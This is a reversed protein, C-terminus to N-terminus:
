RGLLSQYLEAHRAAASSPAHTKAAVERAATRMAELSGSTLLAYIGRALDHADAKAALYGTKFTEVLDPAGTGDFAAVPTGCLMAEPVMMPGADEISPCVFLDASQYALALTIEDNFHGTYKGAFPLQSMLWKSNLGAVLLFLDDSKIINESEVMEALRNLAEILQKMGKRRDELYTAGFFLIKKDFPLHLLDRAVRQNFPRFISTDIPYPILEVRHDGFLSSQRVRKMVWRTPAVLCIPVGSFYRRKRLWTQHSHDNPDNSDLHPCCGCEKTFGECGFSYHCGGTLPDQDALTWVIPCQYHDYLRRILRANLLRSVWHLCIIDISGPKDATLITFLARQNIDPELDFNYTYNARPTKEGLVPVREKLRNLMTHRLPSPLPQVQYVHDDDSKKNRVVMWSNRGQERLASHLRYAAKAAGGSIDETSFHAINM